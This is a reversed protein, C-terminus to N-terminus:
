KASLNTMFGWMGILCPLTYPKLYTPVFYGDARTRPKLDAAWMECRNRCRIMALARGLIETWGLGKRLVYPCCGLWLYTAHTPTHCLAGNLWLHRRSRWVAERLSEKRWPMPAKSSNQFGQWWEWWSCCSALSCHSASTPGQKCLMYQHAGTSRNAGLTLNHVLCVSDRGKPM